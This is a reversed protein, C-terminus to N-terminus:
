LQDLLPDVNGHWLRQSTPSTKPADINAVHIYRKIKEFRTESMYNCFDRHPWLVNHEGRWYDSVAPEIVLEMYM